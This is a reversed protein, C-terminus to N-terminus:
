KKQNIMSDWQAMRDTCEEGLISCLERDSLLRKLENQIFEIDKEANASIEM